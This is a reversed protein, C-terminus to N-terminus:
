GVETQTNIRVQVQPQTLRARVAPAEDPPDQSPAPPGGSNPEM